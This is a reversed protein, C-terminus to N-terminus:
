YQSLNSVSRLKLFLLLSLYNKSNLIFFNNLKLCNILFICITKHIIKSEKRRHGFILNSMKCLSFIRCRCDLWQNDFTVFSRSLLRDGKLFANLCQDCGRHISCKFRLVVSLACFPLPSATPRLPSLYLSKPMARPVIRARAPGESFSIRYSPL